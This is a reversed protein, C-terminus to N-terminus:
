QMEQLKKRALAATRYTQIQALVVDSTTNRVGYGLITLANNGLSKSLKVFSSHFRPKGTKEPMYDPDINFTIATGINLSQHLISAREKFVLIGEWPIPTKFVSTELGEPKLTFLPIRRALFNRFILYLIVVPVCAVIIKVLFATNPDPDFYLAINFIVFMLFSFILVIIIFTTRDRVVIDQNVTNALQLLKQRDEPLKVNSIPHNKQANNDAM